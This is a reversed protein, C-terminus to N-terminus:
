RISWPHWAFVPSSVEPLPLRQRPPMRTQVSDDPDWQYHYLVEDVYEEPGLLPLLQAKFWGDEGVRGGMYTDFRCQRAWYRRTPTMIGWDHYWLPVDPQAALEAPTLADSRLGENEAYLSRSCVSMQDGYTLHVRFGLSDAQLDSLADTIKEVYDGSVMDDDDIFCVYEGRAAELLRQRVGGLRYEGNAYFGIVETDGDREAQPLLVGLLDTFKARRHGMTAILVSLLPM